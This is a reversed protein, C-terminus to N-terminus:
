RRRRPKTVLMAVAFVGLTGPSPVIYGTLDNVSSNFSNISGLWETISDLVEKGFIAGIGVAIATLVFVKKDLKKIKRDKSKSGEQCKRLDAKLREVENTQCNECIIKEPM